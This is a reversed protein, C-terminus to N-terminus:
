RVGGAGSACLRGAPPLAEAHERHGRPPVRLGTAAPRPRAAVRWVCRVAPDMPSARMARDVGEALAHAPQSLAEVARHRSVWTAGRLSRPEVRVSTKAHESKEESVKRYLEVTGKKFNDRVRFLKDCFNVGMM